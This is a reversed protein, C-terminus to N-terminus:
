ILQSVCIFSSMFARVCLGAAMLSISDSEVCNYSNLPTIGRPIRKEFSDVHICKECKLDTQIWEDFLMLYYDPQRHLLISKDTPYTIWNMNSLSIIYSNTSIRIVHKTTWYKWVLKDYQDIMIFYIQKVLEM